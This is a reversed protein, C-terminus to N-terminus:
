SLPLLIAAITHAKRWKKGASNRRFLRPNKKGGAIERLKAFRPFHFHAKGAETNRCHGAM